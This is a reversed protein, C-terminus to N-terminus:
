RQAANLRALAAARAEEPTKPAKGASPVRGPVDHPQISDRADARKSELYKDIVQQDYGKVADHAAQIDPDEMQNMHFLLRVMEESGRKYGLGEAQDYIRDIAAQQERAQEREEFMAAAEERTMYAPESDPVQLGFVEAVQALAEPDDTKALEVLQEVASRRDDDFGDFLQEYRGWKKRYEANEARLEREYDSPGSRPEEAPAPSPSPDPAPAPSTPSVILNESTSPDQQTGQSIIIPDSM